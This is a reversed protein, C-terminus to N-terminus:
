NWIFSTQNKVIAVWLHPSSIDGLPPSGDSGLQLAEMEKELEM